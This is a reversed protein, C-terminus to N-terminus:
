LWQPHVEVRIPIESITSPNGNLDIGEEDLADLADRLVDPLHTELMAMMDLALPSSVSIGNPCVPNPAIELKALHLCTREPLMGRENRWSRNVRRDGHTTDGLIPHSL